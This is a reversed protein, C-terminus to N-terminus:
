SALATTRARARARELHEIAGLAAITGDAVSTTIQRYRKRRCDGAAFVGPLNTALSEDTIIEGRDSLEIIGKLHDTRPVYGIFVFCGDAPTEVREETSKDVSVVAQLQDEGVFETVRQNMVFEINSERRAQEVIYSQAQFDDFEHVITVKKAHRALAISEELASNGGGIAVVEQGRFFDGDCTACYSIGKAKLRQEGPIGLQRPVGGTALIVIDATVAGEDEIEFVKPNATLDFREIKTQTLVQAGFSQAQRLMNRSLEAGSSDQVGPYNAIQHSLVMQGGATGEDVVLTDIRARALYIAATLGAAGAGVVVVSHHTAM